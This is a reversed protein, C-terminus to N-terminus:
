QSDRRALYNNVTVPQAGRGTLANLYLPLTAFSPRGEGTAMRPSGDRTFGVGRNLQVDYTGHGWTLEHGIVQVPTGM